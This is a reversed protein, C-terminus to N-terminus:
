LRNCVNVVSKLHKAVSYLKLTAVDKCQRFSVIAIEFFLLQM